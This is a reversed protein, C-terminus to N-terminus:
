VARELFDKLCNFSLVPPYDNLESGPSASTRHLHFLSPFLTRPGLGAFNPNELHKNLTALQSFADFATPTPNPKQTGRTQFSHLNCRETMALKGKHPTIKALRLIRGHPNKRRGHPI